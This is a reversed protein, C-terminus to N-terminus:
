LLYLETPLVYRIPFLVSELLVIFHNIEFSGRFPYSFSVFVLNNNIAKEKKKKPPSLATSPKRNYQVM